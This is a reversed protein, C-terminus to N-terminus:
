HPSHPGVAGDLLYGHFYDGHKAKRAAPDQASALHDTGEPDDRDALVKHALQLAQELARRAAAAAARAAGAAMEEAWAAIARLHAVRQLLREEGSLDATTTRIAEARREEDAGRGAAWPRLAGLLRRRPPPRRAP